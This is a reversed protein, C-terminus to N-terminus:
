EMRLTSAPDVQIARWAPLCGAILGISAMVVFATVILSTSLVPIPVLDPMNLAGLGVCGLIGLAMGVGGGLLSVVVSELFFQLLVDRKRAGLAMRVGIQQPREHVADLMMNLVGIGGILLTTVAIILMLFRTKDLQLKNLMEMSSWGGVAGRDEVPVGLRSALISRVEDRTVEYLRRDRARYLIQGVVAEDTWFRPWNAQFTTLPIWGQDDILNGDRSLQVGVPELFGVVEFPIGAVRVRSGLGGSAGLLNRRMGDGLVIVRRKLQLDTRTIGRGTAVATGRIDMTEPELGRLDVTLANQGFAIFHFDQSEGAIQDAWKMRRRAVELDDNNFWLFRRDAAPTFDATIHGAHIVGMNKGTKAFGRELMERVGDGWGALFIVSATGWVFGFLTLSARLKQAWLMRFAQRIADVIFM